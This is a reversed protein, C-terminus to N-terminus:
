RKRALVQYQGGIPLRALLPELPRFASLFSPFVFLFHTSLVDFGGARLLRRAEPPSIRVADRDFACRHMVLRTGPNWPNNEWLAFLEGPALSRHVFRIADGRRDPRIHHFVGNSFALDFVTSTRGGIREFSARESGWTRAAVHISRASVDVGTVQEVGLEDFFHPTAAGVGCGYDLLTRPRVGRRDLCRKLWAIRGRAFHASDEGTISLAQDLPGNYDEAYEDFNSAGGTMTTHHEDPVSYVWPSDARRRGLGLRARPTLLSYLSESGRATIQPSAHGEKEM